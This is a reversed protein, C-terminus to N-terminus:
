YVHIMLSVSDYRESHALRSCGSEFLGDECIGIQIPHLLPSLPPPASDSDLTSPLDFTLARWFSPCVVFENVHHVKKGKKCIQNTLVPNWSLRTYRKHHLNSARVTLLLSPVYYTEKKPFIWLDLTFIVDDRETM